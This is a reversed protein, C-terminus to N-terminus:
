SVKRYKGPQEPHPVFWAPRGDTDRGLRAGPVPPHAADLSAPAAARRAPLFRADQLEAVSERFARDIFAIDADTHATTMFCPFNDLIHVGRSRMMAFLLDQLPHDATFFIKWVSSFHRIEIPAGSERCFANLADCLAGTRRNLGEQLAPGQQQLHHLSAHTAALALPHRVFTGAFYTVGVTPISDDGYHWAGGDLADMWDRKGAIVGIPLGGGIVKGYTAMDARIGFLAQVGGPHARFGTVVEDFILATGSQETVERLEQLFAKPQFDPRRSQVPEVLVAALEGARERILRMSEPTGYELVLVNAGVNPMIGPAAPISRMSRTGRVVVEDFIGHYAGTFTVILSRGTVTRAIRLAGMVAESGTNCLGARDFGTMDCIMRAVEGALPHQPGIDYGADIQRRLADAVFDPQWGFLSMGFGNLADVYENGDVDRMRAGASREVVIQYIIEKLLPRFGNVVRPDALHARHTETYAKSGRTREVYRRIFADLRARQAGTLEGAPTTHIRAIAGFAKRVDYRSVPAEDDAATAASAAGPTPGTPSQPPPSAAATVQHADAIEPNPAAGARAAESAPTLAGPVSGALGTAQTAAGAFPAAVPMGLLALQQQMVILQQQVLWQVASADAAPVAQQVPAFQTPYGAPGSYPAPAFAKMSTAAAAAPGPTPPAATEATEATEAPAVSAVSAPLPPPTSAAAPAVSVAAAEPPLVADLHRALADLSRHREMLQRFTIPVAFAAKLQIAAQTLTLSDLGLEVFPADVDAGEFEIGSADELLVRLRATLTAIRDSTPAPMPPLEPVPTSPDPTARTAAPAPAAPAPAAAATEVWHRKREFPYTPLVLRRRPAAPAAGDVDVGLTWLRALALAFSRTEHEADDGLSAVAPAAPVGPRAHQRVFGCLTARPGCELILRGPDALLTTVAASFRVTDRLHRAWYAPDTAQADTLWTGSVTSVIPIRPAALRVPSIAEAFPGIADDMMASHFAHSTALTRSLIGDSALAAEFREIEAAPGAVVCAAPANDAAISLSAPLRQRVADASLRLALMRGPPLAQMLAGRYAVLRAADALPMVGAIVAAAFEGVSHGALAGPRIGRELWMSALAYGICFLAPQTVSTPALSAADGERMLRRLDVDVHPHLADLCADFARAFAPETRHLAAGMGAYQAGQGPFVLAISASREGPRGSTRWAATEDALTAVAEAADRAVVAIRHVFAKRGTQLTFAADALSTQPHAALHAGLRTAMAALAAPTRASLRLIQTDSSPETSPRAPAEEIVVHANTGGVGFASVGAVRTRPGRPWDYARDAVAFPGSAFDIRPNPADFHITAPMRGHELAFATKIVGAAGAAMVTHGINSKVSGIRCFGVADTARRFARTLAEIEVPDGLPTATGHTEVYDIAAPGIGADRLAASVVAEQGAVSPATFSAKGGGDNNVSVGRIVAHVHDGDALADSLRRLLVVAAGDSFVTGAASASFPRTHGDPSLMSGEEYRYGSNPPCTIAAGGALALDCRGLRLADVAQAIAVLSTSCATFVNIAPGNLDLRHAVRTAVYDKENALMTQFEGLRAIHEPHALVHHQFYSANYVGAYVGVTPGAAGPVHGAREMCEWCLELFVRQQPDMLDAERPGIGFFAADFRDAGDVVGRARVYSPDAVRERPISPDIEDVGFFRIGDRGECLMDWFADVDSAGPLRAAMGVIAIPDDRRAAAPAAPAAPAAAAPFPAPPSAAALRAAIGRPSPDDFFAAAPLGRDGAAELRAVTAVVALSTGGLEFFNDLAGVRDIGLVGAFAAAVRAELPGEPAVFDQRLEPRLAAPAPLAARDLKGNLTVPLADLSVYAAPVMYAPLVATLQERVRPLDIGSPDPVVYAVLRPGLAGDDRVLVACAKVGPCRGLAAEIEGPEIRFGRLKVQRDRRGLYDLQGDPLWRVLDGTRYLRDGPAGFPDTVFRAATADPHGLYGIALGDGGVCLEGIFGTPVRELRANLVRVVTRGHPRGIPVARTDAPLDPPITCTTTFTTCETPGYGNILRTEPLADLARRVHAVSLAEGGILLERLGALQRPDDDVVANFLAATLWAADVSHRGLTDALGPGTPVVEPHLVCCGGNLLPGWIELTSADFGLPAAQLMRTAPGLTMFGASMVLRAISRHRIVVGKPQGTSGSTYMVYAPADGDGDGNADSAADADVDAVPLADATTATTAPMGSRDAQDSRDTRDVRELLGLEPLASVSLRPLADPLQGAMGSRTVVLVAAADALMFAIRERPLTPDVPLYAAGARLVGLLTPIAAPCRDLAVGVVTGPAVGAARLRDAIREAALATDAYSLAGDRWALAIADPTRAAQIAFLATVTAPGNWGLRSAEELAILATFAADDDIPLDRVPADPRAAMAELVTAVHVVFREALVPQSCARDFEGVLQTGDTYLRLREPDGRVDMAADAPAARGVQVEFPHIRDPPDGSPTGARAARATAALWTRVSEGPHASVRWTVPNSGGSPSVHLSVGASDAGELRDLVIAAATALALTAGEGTMGPQSRVLERAGAGLGVTRTTREAAARTAPPTFGAGIPDDPRTPTSPTTDSSMPRQQSGMLVRQDHVM